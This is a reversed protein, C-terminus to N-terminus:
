CPRPPSAKTKGSFAWSCTSPGSTTTGRPAPRRGPTTSSRRRGPPSPPTGITVTDSGTQVMKEIELRLKKLDVDMNELVMAAVGSGEQVLGLLIHETGIHQHNFRKAEDRALSLVKRARDTFKEYM